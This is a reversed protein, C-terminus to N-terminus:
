SDKEKGAGAVTTGSIAGNRWYQIRHDTRDSIYYDGNTDIIVNAPNSLHYFSSSNTGNGAITQGFSSGFLYKQIRHNNYDAIYLNNAYDVTIGYPFNLHTNTRGPSGTIGAVTVGTSNWRLVPELGIIFYLIHIKNFIGILFIIM